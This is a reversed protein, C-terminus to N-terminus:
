CKIDVRVRPTLLHLVPSQQGSSGAGSSSAEGSGAGEQEHAYVYCFACACSKNQNVCLCLSVLDPCTVNEECFWAFPHYSIPIHM